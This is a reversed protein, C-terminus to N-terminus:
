ANKQTNARWKSGGQAIRADNMMKTATRLTPLGNAVNTVQRPWLSSFRPVPLHPRVECFGKRGNGAVSGSRAMQAIGHATPSSNQTSGRQRTCRRAKRLTPAEGADQYGMHTPQSGNAATQPAGRDNTANRDQGPREQMTQLMGADKPANRHRKLREQKKQHTRADNPTNRRRKADKPVNILPIPGHLTTQPTTLSSLSSQASV